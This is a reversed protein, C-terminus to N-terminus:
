RIIPKEVPNLNSDLAKKTFCQYGALHNFWDESGPYKETDTVAFAFNACLEYQKDDIVKYEYPKQTEPDKFSTVQSDNIDPLKKNEMYKSAIYGNLSSLDSSRTMDFRKLKSTKPSDMFFFAGAISGIVFVLVLILAIISLMSRKAYEKRRLDYGFYGFILLAIVLVTIIKLVINVTYEGNLFNVLLAVLSGIVTLASVLLMLYTLWRNIGSGHSLTGKKYQHHLVNIIILFVPLLIIASAIGMRLGSQISLDYGYGSFTNNKFAKNIIGFVLQGVSFSLWGLSILVFLNLFADLAGKGKFNGQTQTEM